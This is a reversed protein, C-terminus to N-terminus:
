DPKSDNPKGRMDFTQVTSGSHNTSDTPNGRMDFTQKNGCYITQNETVRSQRDWNYPIDQFNGISPMQAFDIPTFTRLSM